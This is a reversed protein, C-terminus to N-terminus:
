KRTLPVKLQLRTGDGPTTDVDLEARLAEARQRLARLTAPRELRQPDIGCGDDSIRLIFHPGTQEVHIDVRTAESHRLANHLAERFFLFLHRSSEDPLECQWAQENATFKWELPELMISSTERLHEATGIRHARTPRLLWVIDRVASVTEAAIRQIRKLEDAPKDRGEALDAFMQISGLNSGVEDHLDGAIRERIQRLQQKERVRYRIPLAILLFAGAVGLIAATALGLRNWDAVIGAAEVRLQHRRTELDLRRDLATLWEAPPVLRGDPGHGDTLSAASWSRGGTAIVNGMGDPSRAPCGAAINRGESLVEIESLAFFAPYSDFSKWLRTAEIRVYRGQQPELPILVPNHGPNRLDIETSDAAPTNGLPKESVTIRLRRPFGFGSPLDSTPRKAPFLRLADIPQPQGLNLEIFMSEDASKGGRSLWGINLHDPVPIEPLGLPTQGDALFPKSWHWPASPAVGSTSTVDAGLALNRGNSFAFIEAWAHIFGTGGDSDPPLRLASIKLAAAEVPPDVQYLFPHGARVPHSWVGQEHALKAVPNGEADLLEVTFADPTGFQPRLGDVDYRRPPVLAVLDVPGPQSWKLTVSYEADGGPTANPHVSAFGGTGGQDDIPLSPLGPLDSEITDIEAEIESYRGSFARALQDTWGAASAPVVGLAGAALLSFPALRATM